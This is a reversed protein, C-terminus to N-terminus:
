LIPWMDSAALNHLVAYNHELITQMQDYLVSLEDISFSDIYNILRFIKLFRVEHNLESDYSEDWFQDFTIFGLKKLYELSRPQGVIVFPRKHKIALLTKESFNATPETYECENIVCCFIGAFDTASTYEPKQKYDPLLLFDSLKGNIPTANPLQVDTSLPALGNLKNIGYLIKDYVDPASDQWQSIDFWLNRQLQELTSKFYWSYRGDFNILYIMSLHRHASYRWNTCLFKTTIDHTEVTPASVIRNIFESLFLDLCYFQMSYRQGFVERVNDEVVYVKVNTLLNNDVLDQISDFQSARIESFDLTEFRVNPLELSDIVEASLNSKSIYNRDGRYKTLLETLYIHLGNTNLFDITPQDFKLISFQPIEFGTNFIMFPKNFDKLFTNSIILDFDRNDAPLLRGAEDIVVPNNNLNQYVLSVDTM